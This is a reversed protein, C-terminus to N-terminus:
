FGAWWPVVHFLPCNEFWIINGVLWAFASLGMIVFHESPYQRYLAFFVATLLLSAAVGAPASLQVPLGVLASVASVGSLVPIGYPWLRGLAVARDLGILTGRFGIIMLPGHHVILSESPAPLAWGLRLTGAWLGFLLSVGALAILVFRGCRQSSPMHAVTVRDTTGALAIGVRTTLASAVEHEELM